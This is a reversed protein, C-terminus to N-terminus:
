TNLSNLLSVEVTPSIHISPLLLPYPAIYAVGPKKELIRGQLSEIAEPNAFCKYVYVSNQYSHLNLASTCTNSDM